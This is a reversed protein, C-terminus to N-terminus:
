IVVDMGVLLGNNTIVDDHETPPESLFVIKLSNNLSEISNTTINFLPSEKIRQFYNWYVHLFRPKPGFYVSYFYSIM